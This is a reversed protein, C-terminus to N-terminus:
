FFYSYLSFLSVVVGVYVVYKIIKEKSINQSLLHIAWITTVFGFLKLLRLLIYQSFTTTAYEPLMTDFSLARIITISFIYFIWIRLSPVEDFEFDYGFFYNFFYLSIILAVGIWPVPISFASFADMGELFISIVFVALIPNINKLKM